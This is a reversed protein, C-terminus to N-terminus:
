RVPGPAEEGCVFVVPVHVTVRLCWAECVKMAYHEFVSVAKGRLVVISVLRNICPICLLFLDKNASVTSGYLYSTFYLGVLAYLLVRPKTVFNPIYM